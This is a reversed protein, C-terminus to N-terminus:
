PDILVVGVYPPNRDLSGGVTFRPGGDVGWIGHLVLDTSSPESSPDLSGPALTVISGRSGVAHRTGQGDVWVGNLAPTGPLVSAALRQGDWDALVGNSRGGIASIQAPGTGWLSILDEGTGSSLLSWQQGDWQYALGLHGIALAQDPGTGWVKFLARSARQDAPLAVPEWTDGDGRLMVPAGDQALVDGGVTWLQGPGSGWVGWLPVDVGTDVPVFGDKHNGKLSTGHNGVMWVTDGFGYVWNILPTGEPLSVRTWTSGDFHFAVGVEPQGGVAYVDCPGNGWVSLFAGSSAAQDFASQWNAAASHELTFCAPLDAGQPTTEEEGGCALLSLALLLGLALPQSSSSQM